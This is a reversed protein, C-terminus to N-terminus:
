NNGNVAGGIVKELSVTYEGEPLSTVMRLVVKSDVETNGIYFNEDGGDEVGAIGLSGLYITNGVQKVIRCFYSEGNFALNFIEGEKLVMNADEWTYQVLNNNTDLKTFQYTGEPIITETVFDDESVPTLTISMIDGVAVDLSESQVYTVTDTESMKVFIITGIGAGRIDYLVRIKLADEMFEEISAVGTMEVGNLVVNYKYIGFPVNWIDEGCISMVTGDYDAFTMEEQMWVAETGSDEGGVLDDIEDLDGLIEAKLNELDTKTAYDKHNPNYPTGVTVGIIKSM